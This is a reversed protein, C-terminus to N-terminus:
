FITPPLIKTSRRDVWTHDWEMPLDDAINSDVTWKDLIEEIALQQWCPVDFTREFSLRARDTIIRARHTAVFAEVDVGAEAKLRYAIGADLHLMSAQEGNANRILALAFSQLIPVGACLALECTGVLGLMPRVMKPDNWHRTGVCANSLVKRWDRVMINCVGNWVIRAQCFVVDCPERAINEIKLEQGYSRFKEPLLTKVREFDSEEVVILCDDGDDLIEFAVVKAARMAALAMIVMLLCNGLATNIDGSMRGGDVVYKVGGSTRCKNKVQLDLLQDFQPHNPILRRYFDHEVLLVPKSVHKDWRSCDISFCVPNKFRAFKEIILSARQEQNLGKAVMRIGGRGALNYICHEIPRLYQAICLNYRPSRAQIMRPDPNEKTLPDFKEAKVFSQIRADGSSFPVRQLSEYAEVYRKHRVGSFTDVTEELTLPNKHGCRNSLYRSISRLEKLGQATPIPVEGLVRNCASVIENCVCSSHVFSTWVGPVPPVLRVLHRKLNCAWSAPLRLEGHPAAAKELVKPYACM